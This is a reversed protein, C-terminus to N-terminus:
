RSGAWPTNPISRLRSLFADDNDMSRQRGFGRQDTSNPGRSGAGGLFPASSPSFLSFIQLISLKPVRSNDEYETRLSELHTPLSQDLAAEDPSIEEVDQPAVQTTSTSM